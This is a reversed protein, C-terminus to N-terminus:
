KGEVQLNNKVSFVGPVSNAEIGAINKDGENAVVGELDVNGNKVIIHISPLAQFGYRDSLAPNRYIKAAVARRIQWDMPSLPLVEIQNNVSTVGEVKKVVNGADSKLVPNTVQGMLTVVGGPDVKFALNDFINYYPLMVLQHRVEQQLHALDSNQYASQNNKDKNAAPASAPFSLAAAVIGCAALPRLYRFRFM